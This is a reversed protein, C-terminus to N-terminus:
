GEKPLFNKLGQPIQGKKAKEMLKKARYYQKLVRNVHAISTGSGKAVRRKRSGESDLLSPKRRELPTMSFVVAELRAADKPNFREGFAEAAQAGGPMMELLSAMMGPDKMKAMEGAFDELTFEGKGLRQLREADGDRAAAEARELVTHLDGFGLIRSAMRDPHFPELDQLKEGFGAMKVPVGAAAAISLAAGGRADGDLKTVIAGTLTLKEHFAKVAKLADQGAMADVVYLIERPRLLDKLALLEEMLAADVHLRGATDFLVANYVRTRTHALAKRATAAPDNPVVDGFFPVAAKEAVQRLQEVAAPRSLDLPVLLPAFGQAHLYKGLKAATTTKGGGQLGVLMIHQQEASCALNLPISNKGLLATIEEQVIRLVHQFPSLSQLIRGDVARNRVRGCFDKVVELAVDAELMVTRVERLASDVDSETLSARGRLRSLAAGIGRTLVEFM